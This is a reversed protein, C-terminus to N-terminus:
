RRPASAPAWGVCPTSTWRRTRDDAGGAGDAGLFRRPHGGAPQGLRRPHRRLAQRDDRPLARGDRRRLDGAQQRPRLRLLAQHRHQEAQRSRRVLRRRSAPHDAGGRDIRRQQRDDPLRLPRREGPVAAEPAAPGEQGRPERAARDRRWLHLRRCRPPRLPRLSLRPHQGQRPAEGRLVRRDRGAAGRARPHVRRPRLHLRCEGGDRLLRHPLRRDPSAPRQAPDRPGQLHGAGVRRRQRRSLASPRRLGEAHLVVQPRDPLRRRRPRAPGLGEDPRHDLRSGNGPDAQHRGLPWAVDRGEPEQGSLRLHQHLHPGQRPLM